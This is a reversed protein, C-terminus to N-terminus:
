SRLSVATERRRMTIIITINTIMIIMISMISMIATQAFRVRTITISM